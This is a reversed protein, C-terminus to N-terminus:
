SLDEERYEWGNKRVLEILNEFYRELLEGDYSALSITVAPKFNGSEDLDKLLPLSSLEIEKPVTQMFEILNEESRLIFLTRRERKQNQPYHRDLGENVMARAMEPFGPVFFFRDELYFGPIRNIPNALLKAGKPLHAMKIRNPYAKDQFRSLIIEKAELNEDMKNQTFIKAAVERTYDDPTAGIGGFSFMVSNEDERILRYLSEMLSIDDSIIFSGKHDWGRKIIESNVFEFHADRRRGNLLESGIIVSYFNKKLM